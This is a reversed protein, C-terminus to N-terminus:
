MAPAKIWTGLHAHVTRIRGLALHPLLLQFLRFHLSYSRGSKGNTNRSENECKQEWENGRKSIGHNILQYIYIYIYKKKIYIYLPVEWLLGEWSRVVERYRVSATPGFSIVVIVLLPLFEFIGCIHLM